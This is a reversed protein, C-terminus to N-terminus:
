NDGTIIATAFIACIFGVIAVAVGGQNLLALGVSSGAVSLWVGVIAIGKGISM